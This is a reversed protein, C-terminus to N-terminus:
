LALRYIRHRQRWPFGVAAANRLVRANSEEIQVVEAHRFRVRGVARYFGFTDPLNGVPRRFV